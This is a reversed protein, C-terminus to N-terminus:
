IQQLLDQNHIALRGRSISLLDSSRMEGLVRGVHVPTLGTADAIHLQTLPFPYADGESQRRERLRSVIGRILRAIREFANRCGLDLIQEDAEAHANACFTAARKALAPRAHIFDPLESRGFVCVTVETLAKVSHRLRESYLLPLGISDGPLLFSLIQRRGDKAMKYRFAWGSYVQYVDKAAEGEHFITRKAAFVRCPKRLAELESAHCITEDGYFAISRLPCDACAGPSGSELPM